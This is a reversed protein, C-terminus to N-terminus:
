LRRSGFYPNRCLRFASNTFNPTIWEIRKDPKFWTLQRKAFHRTNKKLLEKAEELSYIGKLYGLVENYGLAKKATISLKQRSLRRVEEIIGHKFMEEVRNDINKYLEQRDIKLGLIKFDYKLPETKAKIESPVTKETHYIELSRIVRRLDNPHIKQATKPDIKQLKKYLYNKGYKKSLAEQKKRFKLDKKASSFLGDIVAKVYLGSGGVFLPTRGRKFIDDIAKLAMKRYGAVSFEKVPPIIDILYHRVEQRISKPPKSTLMDMGKYVCMSDCSIIEANLKKALKISLETKGSATPGILFYVIMYM